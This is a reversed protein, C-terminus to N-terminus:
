LPVRRNCSLSIELTLLKTDTRADHGAADNVYRTGIANRASNEQDIDSLIQRYIEIPATYAEHM